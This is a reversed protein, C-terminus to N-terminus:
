NYSKESVNEVRNVHVLVANYHVLIFIEALAHMVLLM